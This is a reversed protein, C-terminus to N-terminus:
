PVSLGFVTASGSKGACQTYIGIVERPNVMNIEGVRANFALRPWAVTVEQMRFSSSRSIAQMTSVHGELVKQQAGATCIKRLM